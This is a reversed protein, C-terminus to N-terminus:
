GTNIFNSTYKITMKAVDVDPQKIMDPYFAQYTIISTLFGLADTNTSGKLWPITAAITNLPSRKAFLCLYTNKNGQKRAHNRLLEMIPAYVYFDGILKVANRSQDDKDNSSYKALIFNKLATDNSVNSYYKNVIYEILLNSLVVEPIEETIKFKFNSQYPSIVEYIKSFMENESLFALFDVSILNTLDTTEKLFDNDIVPGFLRRGFIHNNVPITYGADIIEKASKSELCNYVEESTYPKNDKSGFQDAKPCLKETIAQAFDMPNRWILGPTNVTGSFLIIRQFKGNNSPNTAQLATSESGSQFGTLTIKSPNGGFFEINEQVWAIALKQDWLGFNGPIVSDGTSMFGFVGLRFAVVVNIVNGHSVLDGVATLGRQGFDYNEANFWVVVPLDTQGKSVVPVYIDLFLCDEDTETSPLVNEMWDKIKQPCIKGGPTVCSKIGSWPKVPEPKQFRKPPEAYPLGYFTHVTTDEIIIELGSVQGLPTNVTVLKPPAQSAVTYVMLMVVNFYFM